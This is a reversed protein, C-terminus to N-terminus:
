SLRTSVATPWIGRPMSARTTTPPSPLRVPAFRNGHPTASTARPAPRPPRSEDRSPRRGDRTTTAPPDMSLSMVPVPHAGVSDPHIAGEEVLEALLKPWEERFLNAGTLSGDGGVVVLADIGRHVLNAAAKRRGDRTRFEASRATGIVTGGRQLIGGVDASELRRIAAGGEVLGRYGEAVAYVELGHHLATRVVARLAANM